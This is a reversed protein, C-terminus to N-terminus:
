AQGEDYAKLVKKPAMERWTRILNARAWALDIKDPRALILAHPQYHPTVFFVDPEMELLLEREERSVKFVPADEQPSWWCWLKGHAKLTPQGWSTTEIVNPFGLDLALKKFKPWTLAAPKPKAAPKKAPSKKATTM